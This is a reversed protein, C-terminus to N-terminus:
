NWQEDEAEEAESDVGEIEEVGQRQMYAWERQGTNWKTRKEWPLRMPYIAPRYADYAEKWAPDEISEERLYEKLSPPKCGFYSSAESGYMCIQCNVLLVSVLYWVAIRSLHPKQVPTFSHIRFTNVVKGFGWEIMIRVSNLLSTYGQAKDGAEDETFFTLIKPSCGVFGKDGYLLVDGFLGGELMQALGSKNVMGKDNFWGCLPGFLLALLGDPTGVGLYGLAPMHHHGDYLAEQNIFPGGPKCTERDTGDLFAFVKLLVGPPLRCKSSIAEQFRPINARIRTVDGPWLLHRWKTLIQIAM